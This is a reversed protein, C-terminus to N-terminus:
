KISNLHNPISSPTKGKQLIDKVYMDIQIQESEFKQAEELFAKINQNVLNAYKNLDHYLENHFREVCYLLANLSSELNGQRVELMSYYNTGREIIYIFPYSNILIRRASDILDFIGKLYQRGTEKSYKTLLPIIEDYLTNRKKKELIQSQLHENYRTYYHLFRNYESSGFSDLIPFYYRKDNLNLEEDSINFSQQELRKQSDKDYKNCSFHDNHTSWSGLCAWCFEFNCKRCRM